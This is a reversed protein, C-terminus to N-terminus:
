KGNIWMSFNSVSAGKPVPFTYLAEVQRDEENRFVQTVTTVAISNNILVNYRFLPDPEALHYGCLNHLVAEVEEQEATVGATTKDIM